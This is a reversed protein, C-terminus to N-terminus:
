PLGRLGTRLDEHLSNTGGQTNALIIASTKTRPAHIWYGGFGSILGAHSYFREGSQVWTNVGLGYGLEQTDAFSQPPTAGPVVYLGDEVPRGDKLQAHALMSRLSEAKLLRGSFLADSFSQLDNVSSRLGGAAFPMPEFGTEVLHGNNNQYGKAFGALPKRPNELTTTLAGFRSLVLKSLAAEFSSGTVREIIEGLLLYGSNSYDRYTGPEFLFVPDMKALWIHAQGSSMFEDPAEPPLRGWWNPLGSTHTLLQYITIDKARPFNPFFRDISEELDLMGMESLKLIATATIPKTISAIRFPTMITAQTRAEIDSYGFAENLRDKGNSLGFAIGAIQGTEVLREARQSLDAFVSKLQSAPNSKPPIEAQACASVYGTTLGALLTSLATRRSYM